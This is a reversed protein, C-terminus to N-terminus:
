VNKLSKKEMDKGTAEQTKECPHSIPRANVHAMHLSAFEKFNEGKEKVVNIKGEQICTPRPKHIRDAPTTFPFEFEEM